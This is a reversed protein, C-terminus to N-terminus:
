RGMRRLVEYYTSRSRFGAAKLAEGLTAQPHERRWAEVYEARCRGVYFYFGGLREGLVRSVYSRSVDLRKAIGLMTLDGELFAQRGEVEARIAELIEDENRMLM